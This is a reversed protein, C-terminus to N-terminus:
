GRLPMGKQLVKVAPSVGRLDVKGLTMSCNACVVRNRHIRTACENERNKAGTSFCALYGM